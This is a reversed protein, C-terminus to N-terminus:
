ITIVPLKEWYERTVYITDSIKTWAALEEITKPAHAFRYVRLVAKFAERDTSAKKALERAVAVTPIEVVLEDWGIESSIQNYVSM